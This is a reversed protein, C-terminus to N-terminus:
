NQPFWQDRIRDRFNRGAALEPNVCRGINGQALEEVDLLGFDPNDHWIDDYAQMIRYGDNIAINHFVACTYVIKAATTPDYHLVRQKLLCRFRMKLIGNVREITSRARCFSSNFAAEQSGDQPNQYPTMMWERLPYGGDGLLCFREGAHNYLRRLVIQVESDNWITCDNVSGPYRANLNLIKFDADCILQVNLSHYGKRNIYVHELHIPHNRPPRVIAVHTCDICRYRGLGVDMQYSGTSFFRLATLVNRERFVNGMRRSYAGLRFVMMILFTWQEFYDVEIRHLIHNKISRM